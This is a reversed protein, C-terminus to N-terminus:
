YILLQLIAESIQLWARALSCCVTRLASGPGQGGPVRGGQYGACLPNLQSATPRPPVCLVCLSGRAHTLLNRGPGSLLSLNLQDVLKPEPGLAFAQRAM